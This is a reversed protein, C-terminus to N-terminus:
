SVLGRDMVWIRDAKGYKAEVQTVIQEVTTVDATQGAFVEYALPLGERTVVLALCIQKCDPRHDRSYGRQALGEFYTSTIEYLLLDYAVPFLEGVRQKLHACLAEKHPLMQDLSRYLRSGNVRAAPVALWDELVTQRYWDEAIPLEGSPECLRALVLIASMNAWSVQERCVPLHAAMWEELKLARWLTWGL